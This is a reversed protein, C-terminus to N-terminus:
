QAQSNKNGNDPRSIELDPEELSGAARERIFDDIGHVAVLLIYAVFIIVPLFILITVWLPKRARPEGPEEVPKITM